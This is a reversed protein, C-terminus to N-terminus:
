ASDGHELRYRLIRRYAGKQAITLNGVGLYEVLADDSLLKPLTSIEIQCLKNVEESTLLCDDCFYGYAFTYVFPPVVLPPNYM